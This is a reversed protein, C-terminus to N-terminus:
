RLRGQSQDADAAGLEVSRFTAGAPAIIAIRGGRRRRRVFQVLIRVGDVAVIRSEGEAYWDISQCRRGSSPQKPRGNDFQRAADQLAVDEFQQNRALRQGGAPARIDAPVKGNSPDM